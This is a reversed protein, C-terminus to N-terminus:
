TRKRMQEPIHYYTFNVKDNHKKVCHICMTKKCPCDCVFLKSAPLTLKCEGQCPEWKGSM